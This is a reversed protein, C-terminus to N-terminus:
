LGIDRERANRFWCHSHWQAPKFDNGSAPFNWEQLRKPTVLSLSGPGVWRDSNDRCIRPMKPSCVRGRTHNAAGERCVNRPQVYSPTRDETRTHRRRPRRRSCGLRTREGGFEQARLIPQGLGGSSPHGLECRESARFATLRPNLNSHQTPTFTVSQSFRRLAAATWFAPAFEQSERCRSADQLAGSGGPAKSVRDECGQASHHFGTPIRVKDM